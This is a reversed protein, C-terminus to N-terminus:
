QQAAVIIVRSNEALKVTADLPRVLGNEVVGVIALPHRRRELHKEVRSVIAGAPLQMPPLPPAAAIQEDQARRDPTRQDAEPRTM